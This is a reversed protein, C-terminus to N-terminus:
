PQDLPGVGLGADGNGPDGVGLGVHAGFHGAGPVVVDGRAIQQKWEQIHALHSWPGATDRVSTIGNIIFLDLFPIGAYRTHVHSDWLGPIVYKGTADVVTADAPAKVDSSKGLTQIRNGAIVITQDPRVAGGVVDIVSAHTVVLPKPAATQAPLRPPLVLSALVAAAGLVGANTRSAYRKRNM